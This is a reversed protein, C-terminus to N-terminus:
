LAVISVTKQLLVDFKESLTPIFLYIKRMDTNRIPNSASCFVPKWKSAPDPFQTRILELVLSLFFRRLFDSIYLFLDCFVYNFAQFMIHVPVTCVCRSFEAPKLISTNHMCTVESLFFDIGVGCSESEALGCGQSHQASCPLTHNDIWDVPVLSERRRIIQSRGVGRGDGEVTLLSSRSVCASLSVSLSLCSASPLPPLLPPLSGLWVVPSLGVERYYM